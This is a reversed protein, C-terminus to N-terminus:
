YRVTRGNIIYINGKQPSAVRRGQLDYIVANAAEEQADIDSVATLDGDGNVFSFFNSATTSTMYARNAALTTGNHVRMGAVNSKSGLSYITGLSTLKVTTGTLENDSVTASATGITLTASSNSADYLIVGTGAPISTIANMTLASENDTQTTLYYPTANTVASVDFPLYTSAYYGDSANNLTIDVNTIIEVAMHTDNSWYYDMINTDSSNGFNLLYANCGFQVWEPDGSTDNKGTGQVRFISANALAVLSTNTNRASPQASACNEGAANLNANVVYFGDYDDTPILQWLENVDTTTGTSGTATDHTMATTGEDSTAIKMANGAYTTGTAATFRYYENGLQNYIDTFVYGSSVRTYDIYDNLTSYTNATGLLM